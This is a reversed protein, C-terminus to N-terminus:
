KIRATMVKKIEEQAQHIYHYIHGMQPTKELDVQRLVMYLPEVTVIIEAVCDWFHPNLVNKKIKKGDSRSSSQDLSTFMTRLIVKRQQLSRLAIFNNAFRTAGPRVIEGEIKNSPKNSWYLVSPPKLIQIRTPVAVVLRMNAVRTNASTKPLEKNPTGFVSSERTTSCKM